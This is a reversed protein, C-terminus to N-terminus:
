KLMKGQSNRRQTMLSPRPEEGGSVKPKVTDTAPDYNPDLMNAPARTVPAGTRVGGQRYQQVTEMGGSYKKLEYTKPAKIQGGEKVAKAIDASGSSTFESDGYNQKVTVPGGKQSASIMSQMRNLDDTVAQKSTYKDTKYSSMAGGSEVLMVKQYEQKGSLPNKRAKVEKIKYTPNEM